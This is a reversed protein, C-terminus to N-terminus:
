RPQTERVEVRDGPRWAHAEAYGAPVELVADALERPRLSPGPGEPSWPVRHAIDVIRDDRIWVIDISFRMDKMWFSLFDAREYPFLMSHDWELGDRGGLGRSKEEFGRVIETSVRATRITTWADPEPDGGSVPEGCALALVAIQLLGALGVLRAGNRRRNRTTM